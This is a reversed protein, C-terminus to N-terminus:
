VDNNDKSPMFNIAITLKIKWTHSKKLDNIIM